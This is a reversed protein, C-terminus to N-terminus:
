EEPAAPSPFAAAMIASVQGDIAADVQEITTITGADIQEAVHAEASFCAEIFASMATGIAIITPADLVMFSGDAVKWRVTFSPDRMAAVVAGIIMTQSERDTLLIIGNVTTSSTEKRYRVAAAYSKLAPKDIVYDYIMVVKGDRREHRRGSVMLEDIPAVDEVRYIGHTQQSEESWSQWVQPPHQIDPVGNATEVFAKTLDLEVFVNPSTERVFHM